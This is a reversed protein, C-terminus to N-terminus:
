PRISRSPQYKDAKIAPVYNRFERLIELKSADAKEIDTKSGKVKGNLVAQLSDFSSVDSINSTPNRQKQRDTM